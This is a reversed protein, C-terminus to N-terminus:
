AQPMAGNPTLKDVIVPLIQALHSSVQEVNIGHQAALEQLRQNGLVEQIQQASVPLNQDTSVWSAVTAGLGKDKFMQVLGALGGSQGTNVMNLVSAALGSPAGSTGGSAESVQGLIGQLLGAIAGGERHPPASCGAGGPCNM